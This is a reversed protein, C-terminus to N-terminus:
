KNFEIIKVVILVIFILHLLLYITVLVTYRKKLENDKEAKIIEFFHIIDRPDNFLNVKYGKKHCVFKILFFLITVLLAVVIAMYVYIDFM